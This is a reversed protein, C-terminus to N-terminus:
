WEVDAGGSGVSLSFTYGDMAKGSASKFGDLRFTMVMDPTLLRSSNSRIIDLKKNDDYWSGSAAGIQSPEWGAGLESPKDNTVSVTGASIDMKENFVITVKSLDADTVSGDPPNISVASLQPDDGGSNGTIAIGGAAAATAAAVAAITGATWGSGALLLTAGSLRIASESQDMLISDRFGKPEKPAQGIETSVQVDGEMNTQQWPPVDKGADNKLLFEQTKIIQNNKNAVLFLYIINDTNQDPAPLIGQYLNKESQSMSVFVYDAQEPSKFYCRVVSVGAKDSIEAGVQIRHGSVFYKLPKHTVKTSLKEQAFAMPMHLSVLMLAAMFVRVTKALVKTQKKGM